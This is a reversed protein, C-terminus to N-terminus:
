AKGRDDKAIIKVITSYEKGTEQDFDNKTFNWAKM